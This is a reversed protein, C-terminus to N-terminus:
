DRHQHESCDCQGPICNCAITKVATKEKKDVATLILALDTQTLDAEEILEAITKGVKKACIKSFLQETASRMTQEESVLPQYIFKNGELETLLIQKKVLRSLLTKITAPKWDMSTSLISIIEPSTTKGKAWIVRMVEWEAESIKLTKSETM